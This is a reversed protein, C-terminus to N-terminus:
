TEARGPHEDGHATGRPAQPRQRFTWQAPSAGWCVPPRLSLRLAMGPPLTQKGSGLIVAETPDRRDWPLLHWHTSGGRPGPLGPTAMAGMTALGQM